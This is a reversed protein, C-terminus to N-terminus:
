CYKNIIVIRLRTTNEFNLFGIQSAIAKLKLVVATLTGKMLFIVIYVLATMNCNNSGNVNRYLNFVENILM